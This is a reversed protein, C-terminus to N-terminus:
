IISKFAKELRKLEIHDGKLHDPIREYCNMNDLVYFSGLIFGLGMYILYRTIKFSYLIKFAALFIFVILSILLWDVFM